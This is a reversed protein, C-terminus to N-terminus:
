DVIAVLKGDEHEIFPADEDITDIDPGNVGARAARDQVEKLFRKKAAPTGQLDSRVIDIISNPSLVAQAFEASVLYARIAAESRINYRKVSDILAVLKDRYKQISLAAQAVEGSQIMKNFHTLYKEVNTAGRCLKEVVNGHLMDVDSNYDIGEASDILGGQGWIRKHVIAFSANCGAIFSEIQECTSKFGRTSKKKQTVTTVFERVQGLSISIDKKFDGFLQNNRGIVKEVSISM